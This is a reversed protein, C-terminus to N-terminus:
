SFPQLVVRQGATDTGAVTFSEDTAAPHSGSDLALTKGGAVGATGDESVWSTLQGGDVSARFSSGPEFGALSISVSTGDVGTVCVRAPGERAEAVCPSLTTSPGSPSAPPTPPSGVVRVVALGGVGVSAVILWFGVSRCSSVFPPEHSRM